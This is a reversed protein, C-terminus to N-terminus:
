EVWWMSLIQKTKKIPVAQDKLKNKAGAKCVIICIVKIRILQYSHIPHVSTIQFLPQKLADIVNKHITPHADTMRSNPLKSQLIYIEIKWSKNHSNGRTLDYFIKFSLCGSLQKTLYHLKAANHLSSSDTCWHLKYSNADGAPIVTIKHKM